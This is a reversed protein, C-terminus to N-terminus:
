SKAIEGGMIELLQNTIAQQRSKNYLITLEQIMKEANDSAIQMAIIRAAHEAANSDLLVTFIKLSLVRPLLQLMFEDADPEVIYDVHTGALHKNVSLDIPLYEEHTVVQSATSKFHNYVLEIRDVEGTLFLRMLRDALEAAEPYTPKEALELFDGQPTFGAKTVARAIKKGVPFILINDRGLAEYELVLRDVAKIVNTNFAGCLSSNSSLAVIAIRKVERTATFPSSARIGSSLFGTLMGNLRKEYPLMNEVARHARHFKASAVMKMASTIKLTSNVSAIRGKVEKLSAM